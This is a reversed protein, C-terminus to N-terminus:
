RSKKQGYYASDGHKRLYHKNILFGAPLPADPRIARVKCEMKAVYELIVANHVAEDADTGWAFPGHNAVLVAPITMPDIGKFTEVIVLGTNKEYQSVTEQESLSRTVPIDGYFYDAHTTGMCRVPLSAQAMTTAFESHSHVVGGCKFTRYLELHTPTDSSPNFDGEIIEGTEISVLVMSDPSLQDYPVGSPKIAMIGKNHDAASVNGFTFLVLGSRELTMNARYAAEKLAKM